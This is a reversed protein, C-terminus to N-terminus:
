KYIGCALILDDVKLVFTTKAEIKKTVPNTYKYDVWGSGKAKALDVGEKVFLKGDPDQLGALDKGILKPNTPHALVSYDFTWIFVYVDGKIFQGKPNNIAVILKDKGNAKYFAEAKKVLTVADDKPSAFCLTGMLIVILTVVIIISNKRM